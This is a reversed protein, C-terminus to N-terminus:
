RPLKLRHLISSFTRPLINKGPTCCDAGVQMCVRPGRDCFVQDIQHFMSLWAQLSVKSPVTTNSIISGRLRTWSDIQDFGTAHRAPWNYSLSRPGPAHFCPVCPSHLVPEKPFGWRTSQLVQSSSQDRQYVLVFLQPVRQTCM